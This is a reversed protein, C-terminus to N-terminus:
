NLEIHLNLGLKGFSSFSEIYYILLEKPQIILEASFDRVM